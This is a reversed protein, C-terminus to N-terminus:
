DYELDDSPDVSSESIESPKQIGYREFINDWREQAKNDVRKDLISLKRQLQTRLFAQAVAPINNNRLDFEASIDAISDGPRRQAVNIISTDFLSPVTFLVDGSVDTVDVESMPTGAIAIWEAIITPQSAIPVKNVFHPLFYNTFVDEPIQVREHHEVLADHIDATQKSITNKLNSTISDSLSDSM